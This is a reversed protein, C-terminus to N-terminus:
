DFSKVYSYLAMVTWRWIAALLAEPGLLISCWLVQIALTRRSLFTLLNIIKTSQEWSGWVVTWLFCLSRKFNSCTHSLTSCVPLIAWLITTLPLELSHVILIFSIYNSNPLFHVNKACNSLRVAFRKKREREIRLSLSLYSSQSSWTYFSERLVPSFIPSVSLCVSAPISVSVSIFISISVSVSVSVSCAATFRLSGM